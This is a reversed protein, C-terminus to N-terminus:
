KPMERDNQEQEVGVAVDPVVSPRGLDDIRKNFENFKRDFAKAGEIVGKGFKVALNKIPERYKAVYHTAVLVAAAVGQGFIMGPVPADM